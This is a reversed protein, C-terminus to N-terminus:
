RSYADYSSSKRHKEEEYLEVITKEVPQDTQSVPFSCRSGIIPTVFRQSFKWIKPICQPPRLLKKYSFLESICLSFAM